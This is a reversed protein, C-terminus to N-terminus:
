ADPERCRDFRRQLELWYSASNGFYGALGRSIPGDIRRREAALEVIASQPLEAARALQEASIRHWILLEQLYAGPHHRSENM